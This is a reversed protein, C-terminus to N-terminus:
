ALPNSVHYAKLKDGFVFYAMVASFISSLGFLSTLIGQNMNGYTAFEFTFVVTFGAACNILTYFIAGVVNPWYISKTEPHCYNSEEWSWVTTGKSLYKFFLYIIYFFTFVLSGNEAAERALVGLKANNGLIYNGTAFCCGALFAFLLSEM